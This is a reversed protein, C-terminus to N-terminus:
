LPIADIGTVQQKPLLVSISETENWIYGVQLCENTVEIAPKVCLSLLSNLVEFVSLAEWLKVIYTM